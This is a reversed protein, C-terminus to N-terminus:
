LRAITQYTRLFVARTASITRAIQAITAKRTARLAYTNPVILIRRFGIHEVVAHLVHGRQADNKM